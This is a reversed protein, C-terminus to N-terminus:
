AADSWDTTIEFALQGTRLMEAELLEDALAFLDPRTNRAQLETIM